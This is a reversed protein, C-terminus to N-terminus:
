FALTIVLEQFPCNLEVLREKAPLVTHAEHESFLHSRSLEGTCENGHVDLTSVRELEEGLVHSPAPM